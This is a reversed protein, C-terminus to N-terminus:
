PNVMLASAKTILHPFKGLFPMALGYPIWSLEKWMGLSDAQLIGIRRWFWMAM